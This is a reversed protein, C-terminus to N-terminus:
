SRVPLPMGPMRVDALRRVIRRLLGSADGCGRAIIQQNLLTGVGALNGELSLWESRRMFRLLNSM